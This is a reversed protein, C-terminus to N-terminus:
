VLPLGENVRASEVAGIQRIVELGTTFKQVESMKGLIGALNAELGTIEKELNTTYESFLKAFHGRNQVM